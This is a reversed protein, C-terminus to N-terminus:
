TLLKWHYFGDGEMARVLGRFVHRDMLYDVRKVGESAEFEAASPISRCRRTYARTIAIKEDQDLRAWDQHSIRRHLSSHIMYLVDGVSLLPNGVDYGGHVCLSLEIPWQPIIM